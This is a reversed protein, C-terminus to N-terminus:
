LSTVLHLITWVLSMVFFVRLGFARKGIVALAQASTVLMLAEGGLLASVYLINVVPPADWFIFHWDATAGIVLPAPLLPANPHVAAHSLRIWCGLLIGMNFVTMALRSSIFRFPLHDHIARCTLYWWTPTNCAAGIFTLGFLLLLWDYTM